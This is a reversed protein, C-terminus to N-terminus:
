LISLKYRVCKYISNEIYIHYIYMKLLKVSKIRTKFLTLCLKKKLFFLSCYYNCFDENLCM